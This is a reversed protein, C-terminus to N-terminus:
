VRTDLKTIGLRTHLRTSTFDIFQDEEPTAYEATTDVTFGPFFLFPFFGSYFIFILTSCRFDSSIFNMKWKM